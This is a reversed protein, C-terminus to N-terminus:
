KKLFPIMTKKVDALSFQLHDGDLALYEVKGAETLSRLGINDNKYFDTANLQQVKGHTDLEQFWATEKPYIMTDKQFMILMASNLSSFREKRLAATDGNASQENNMAPLFVSNWQYTTFDNVDRFYGAPGIWDQAFSYYVFKKAVANIIGCFVGSICHPIADVGMHPGGITLMNRVKGKMDCEEVIYRALLGGQSLGVVNFEGQFDPNAAVQECSNKAITEFNGVVEGSTGVEICHVPAGTGEAFTQDIQKMGANACADGFGHFMATPVGADGVQWSKPNEKLDSDTFPSSVEEANQNSSVFMDLGLFELVM